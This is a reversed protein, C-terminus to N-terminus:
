QKETVAVKQRWQVYRQLLRESQEQSMDRNMGDRNAGDIDHALEAKSVDSAEGLAPPAAAAFSQLLDKERPFLTVFLLAAVGAVAVAAALGRPSAMGMRSASERSLAAPSSLADPKIRRRAFENMASELPDGAAVTSRLSDPRHRGILTDLDELPNTPNAESLVSM